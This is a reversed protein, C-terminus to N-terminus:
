LEVVIQHVLNVEDFPFHLAVGGVSHLLHIAEMTGMPDGKAPPPDGRHIAAALGGVRLTNKGFRGCQEIADLEEPTPQAEDWTLVRYLIIDLATRGYIDKSNIGCYAHTFGPSGSSSSFPSASSGSDSKDGVDLPMLLPLLDYQRMQCALHIPTMHLRRCRLLKTAPHEVLLQVIEACGREVAAHLPTWSDVPSRVNPSFGRRLLEAAISSANESTGRSRIAALLLPECRVQSVPGSSQRGSDLQDINHQGLKAWDLLATM